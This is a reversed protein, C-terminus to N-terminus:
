AAQAASPISLLMVNLMLGEVDERRLASHLGQVSGMIKSINKMCYISQVYECQYYHIQAKNNLALLTLITISADPITCRTLLQVTMNYLLSAKKLSKERGLRGERHSSLAWNFLVIATYLSLMEGSEGNSTETIIIGHDYVYCHLDQLDPVTSTSECFPPQTAEESSLNMGTCSTMEDEKLAKDLLCLARQFTKRARASEGSVLLDVGQNNLSCAYRVSNM